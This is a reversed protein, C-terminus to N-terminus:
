LRADVMPSSEDLRRGLPSIIRDIVRMVHDDNDFAADTRILKGAREVFVKSPGNVMIETVTEDALLPELPGFGLIEATIASLLAARENRTFILNDAAVVQTFIESVKQRVQDPRGLDLDAGMAQLLRSQITLKMEVLNREVVTRQRSEPSPGGRVNQKTPTASEPNLRKLLSM